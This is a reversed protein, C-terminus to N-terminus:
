DQQGVPLVAHPLVAHVHPLRENHVNYSNNHVAPTVLTHVLSSLGGQHVQTVQYLGEKIAAENGKMDGKAILEQVAVALNAMSGRTKEFGALKQVHFPDFASAALCPIWTPYVM